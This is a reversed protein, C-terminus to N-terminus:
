GISSMQVTNPKVSGDPKYLSCQPDDGLFDEKGNIRSVALAVARCGRCISWNVCSGCKGHYSGKHRLYWLVPSEAWVKTFPEVSINGINLDMHRCPMIGGGSTITIGFIGAACGGVPFETDPVEGNYGAIAALPDGSLIALKEGQMKPFNRYIDTVETADLMDKLMNSGAGCPALRSFTVADIGIERALGILGSIDGANLRSLTMNMNTSIGNSILHKIGEVARAFSGIGRISDHIEQLGDFSVQVDKVGSEKIKKAIRDTVMTGNSMLSTEFGSQAAFDLIEFLDRRIFPEGGSFNIGPVMELKYESVWRKITNGIDEIASFLQTKDLEPTSGHQDCHRCKLNCRETLHWQIFFSYPTRQL